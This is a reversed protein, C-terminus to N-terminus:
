KGSDCFQLGLATWNSALVFALRERSTEFQSVLAVKTVPRELAPNWPIGYTTVVLSTYLLTYILTYVPNIYIYINHFLIIYYLIIYYLIICYLIIYYLIIYYLIIYYLIIYLYILM